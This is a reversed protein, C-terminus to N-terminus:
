NYYGTVAPCLKVTPEMLVPRPLNLCEVMDFFEYLQKENVKRTKSYLTMTQVNYTPAEIDFSMMLCDTCSSHFITGSFKTFRKPDDRSKLTDNFYVGRLPAKYEQNICVGDRLKTTLFTANNYHLTFSDSRHTAVSSQNNIKLSLSVATWQGYLPPLDQLRAPRVMGYCRDPCPSMASTLCLLAFACAALFMNSWNTTRRVQVQLLLSNSHAEKNM